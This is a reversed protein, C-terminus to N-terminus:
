QFEKHRKYNIHQHITQIIHWLILAICFAKVYISKIIQKAKLNENKIQKTIFIPTKLIIETYYFILLLGSYYKILKLKM